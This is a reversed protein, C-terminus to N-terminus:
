FTTLEPDLLNVTLINDNLNVLGNANLVDIKFRHYRAEDDETLVPFPGLPDITSITEGNTTIESLKTWTGASSMYLVYYTCNHAVKQWTLKVKRPDDNPANEVEIDPTPVFRNTIDIIMQVLLKSVKKIRENCPHEPAHSLFSNPTLSARYRGFFVSQIHNLVDTRTASEILPAGPLSHLLRLSPSKM